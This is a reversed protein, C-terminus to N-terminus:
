IVGTKCQLFKFHSLTLTFFLDAEQSYFMRRVSVVPARVVLVGQLKLATKKKRGASQLLWSDCRFHNNLNISLM